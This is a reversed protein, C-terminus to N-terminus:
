RPRNENRESNWKVSSGFQLWVFNSPSDSPIEFSRRLPLLVSLSDFLTLAAGESKAAHFVIMDPVMGTTAEKEFDVSAKTPLPGYVECDPGISALRSILRAMQESEPPATLKVHCAGPPGPIAQRFNAFAGVVGVTNGFVPDKPDLYHTKAVIVERMERVERNARSLASAVAQLSADRKQDIRFPGLVFGSVIFLCGFAVLPTRVNDAFYQRCNRLALPYSHVRQLEEVYRVAVWAMSLAIGSLGLNTLLPMFIVGWTHQWYIFLGRTDDFSM